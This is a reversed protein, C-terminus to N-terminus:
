RQALDEPPAARRQLGGRFAHASEQRANNDLSKGIQENGLQKGTVPKMGVFARM